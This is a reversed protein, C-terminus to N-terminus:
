QHRYHSIFFSFVNKIDTSIIPTVSKRPRTTRRQTTTKWRWRSAAAATWPSSSSTTAWSSQPWTSLEVNVPFPGAAQDVGEEPWAQPTHCMAIHQKRTSTLPTLTAQPAVAVAAPAYFAAMSYTLPLTAYSAKTTKGLVIEGGGVRMIPASAHPGWAIPFPPRWCCGSAHGWISCAAAQTGGGAGLIIGSGGL